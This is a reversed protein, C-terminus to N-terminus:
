RGAGQAARDIWSGINRHGDDAIYDYVTANQSLPTVYGAVPDALWPPLSVSITYDSYRNWEWKYGGIGNPAAQKEFLCYRPTSLVGPQVKGVAMFELPNYGRTHPTKTHHHRISNLHVGLLGRGDVIARAIEYRVWRRLWTETGILVCVASTYEVGERILRKVADDGELKRNEWLSSDQFSRMLTNDPHDIKWANRVVNVRMIDDYHFSFFAKRKVTPAVPKPPAPPAYLAGLPTPPDTLPFHGSLAGFGLPAPPPPAVFGALANVYNYPSAPSRSKLPGVLDEVASGTLGNPPGFLDSVAPSYPGALPSQPSLARILDTVGPTTASTPSVWDALANTRKAPLPADLFRLLGSYKPDFPNDAM